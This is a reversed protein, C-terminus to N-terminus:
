YDKVFARNEPRKRLHDGFTNLSARLRRPLTALTMAAIMRPHLAASAQLRIARGLQTRAWAAPGGVRLTAWANNRCAKVRFSRLDRGCRAPFDPHEALRDLIVMLMDHNRSVAKGMNAGHDRLVVTPQPDFKFKWTMAIRFLISEGDGFLDDYWHYRELCKRRILPSSMDV